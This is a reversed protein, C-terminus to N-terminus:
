LPNALTRACIEGWKAKSIHTSDEWAKLCMSMPDRMTGSLTIAEGVTAEVTSSYAHQVDTGVRIPAMAGDDFASARDPYFNMYPIAPPPRPRDCTACAGLTASGIGHCCCTCTASSLAPVLRPEVDPGFFSTNGVVQLTRKECM